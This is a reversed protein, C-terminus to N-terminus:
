RQVKRPEVKRSSAKRARARTLVQHDLGAAERFMSRCRHVRTKVAGVSVGLRRGIEKYPLRELFALRLIERCDATLCSFIELNRLHEETWLFAEEPGSATDLCPLHEADLEVEARRRRLYELCTYRAVRRSYTDLSADGRFRGASLNAFIRTLSDQVLDKTLSADSFQFGRVATLVAERVAAVADHDGRLFDAIESDFQGGAAM